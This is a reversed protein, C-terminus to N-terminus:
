STSGWMARAPHVAAARRAPHVGAAVGITVCAALALVFPVWTVHGTALGLAELALSAVLGAAVGILGAAVAVMVSESLFQLRIDAARAGVARRIGIERMRQSVALLM